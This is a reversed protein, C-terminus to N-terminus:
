KNSDKFFNKVSNFWGSTKPSHQKGDSALSDRLQTLLGKQEANLKVPTEVLVRCLLDGISHNRMAKVGKGRLRFLAGSQTEHPIKLKVKGELTPIDIEGGLAATVLDIPVECQLNNGERVFIPHRKIHTQVYLDGPTGGNIGAEGKASLRIRDGTDIGAPIKVSLTTYKQVRGQGHCRSCPDRIIKGQGRCHPCTQQMSIFGQDIRVAGSGHCATCETPHTGKRAGGGGCEECTVVIPIQIKKETGHVAEELSLELNYGLDAGRQPRSGGGGGGSFIDGFIDGFIDSMNSFGGAAAGGRAGGMGSLGEHGVQDYISRKKSDSLVEYAEGVEKFKIEAGKPDNPNRDPHHEM